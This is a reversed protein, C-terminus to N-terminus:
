KASLAIGNPWVWGIYGRHGQCTATAGAAFSEITEIKCYGINNAIIGGGIHIGIHGYVSGDYGAGSSIVAAGVPIDTMSTSGTYSWKNWYDIANGHPPLVGAANYVGSVWAACWGANCPFTGKNMAATDAVVNAPAGPNYGDASERAKRAYEILAEADASGVSGFRTRLADGIAANTSDYEQQAERYAKETGAISNITQALDSDLAAVKDKKEEAIKAVEARKASVEEEAKKVEAFEQELTNKLEEIEQRTEKIEELRERDYRYIRQFYEAANLVSDMSDSTILAESVSKNSDEYMFRIRLSMEDYQKNQKKIQEDLRANTEYIKGMLESLKNDLANIEDILKRIQEELAKLEKETKQKEEETKKKQEELQKKEEELKKQQDEIQLKQKILDDIEDAFIVQPSATLASVAGAGTLVATGALAACTLKKFIKGKM